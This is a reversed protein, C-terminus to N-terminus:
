QLKIRNHIIILLIKSAHCLLGITRHNKCDRLDGSKPLCIFVAKAWEEPWGRIRWIINCLKHLIGAGSEGASKILEALIDDVVPSKGNKLCSIAQRVEDLLIEPEVDEEGM